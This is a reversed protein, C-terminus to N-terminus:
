GDMNLRFEIVGISIVDRDIQLKLQGNAMTQFIQKFEQPSGQREEIQTLRKIINQVLQQQSQYPDAIFINIGSAQGIVDSMEQDNLLQMTTSFKAAFTSTSLVWVALAFLCKKKM